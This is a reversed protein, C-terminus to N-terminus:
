GGVRLVIKGQVHGAEARRHADAADALDYVADLGVRLRGDELLDALHALHAGDSHVQGGAIAIGRAAAEGRHYEGVFVQNLQGGRRLVDLLRHGDPGGVTDLVLDVDHAVDRPDATEYDVVVDAGLDRLFADHRGSAVAIVRAGRVKALQVAFHGVGGAAGNVLVTAGPQLDAVHFLHQHATLGAMPVGAAHLHDVTAPKRALDTAPSTTYQAYGKGGNHPNPFRILGFVEDGIAWDVVDAGVEVVVGSVDSGPTFPLRLTPPRLEPPLGALAPVNEFGRRAYTDPPNVGAARVEILVDGPGPVPRAVEEYSLVDPEGHAHLRVAWMTTEPM